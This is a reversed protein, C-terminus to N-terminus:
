NRLTYFWNIELINNITCLYQKKKIEFDNKLHFILDM